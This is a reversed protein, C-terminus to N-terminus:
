LGRTMRKICVQGVEQGVPSPTLEDDATYGSSSSSTYREAEADELDQIAPVGPFFPATQSAARNNTQSM